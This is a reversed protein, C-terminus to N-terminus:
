CVPVLWGNLIVSIFDITHISNNLLSFSFLSNHNRRESKEREKECM